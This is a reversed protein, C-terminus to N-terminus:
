LLDLFAANVGLGVRHHATDVMRECAVEQLLTFVGCRDYLLPSRGHLLHHLGVRGVRSIM